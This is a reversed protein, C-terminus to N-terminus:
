LPKRNLITYIYGNLTMTNDLDLAKKKKWMRALRRLAINEEHKITEKLEEENPLKLDGNSNTIVVKGFKEVNNNIYNKCTWIYTCIDHVKENDNAKFLDPLEECIEKKTYFRNEEELLKLLIMADLKLDKM